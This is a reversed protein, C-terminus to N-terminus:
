RLIGVFWDHTRVASTPRLTLPWAAGPHTRCRRGTDETPRTRWKERGQRRLRAWRRSSAGDAGDRTGPHRPLPPPRRACRPRRPEGQGPRRSRPRCARGGLDDDAVNRSEHLGEIGPAHSGHRCRPRIRVLQTHATRARPPPSARGRSGDPPSGASRPGTPSWGSVSRPETFRAPRSSLENRWAPGM